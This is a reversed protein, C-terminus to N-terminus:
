RRQLLRRTLHVLLERFFHGTSTANPELLRVRFLQALLYTAIILAYCVSFQNWEIVGWRLKWGALRDVLLGWAVPFVGATLGTVVSFWAFFYNRGTEPVVTMLLQTNPLTLLAAGVAGALQILVTVWVTPALVGAAVAGWLTLHGVLIIGNAGLLPKSGVRDAVAGFGWLTVATGASYVAMLALFQWDQFGYRDRLLPVWCVGTGALAILIVINFAM